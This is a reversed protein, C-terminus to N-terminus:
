SQMHTMGSHSTVSTQRLEGTCNTSLGASPENSCMVPEWCCTDPSCTMMMAEGEPYPGIGGVMYLRDTFSALIGSYNVPATGQLALQREAFFRAQIQMSVGIGLAQANIPLENM